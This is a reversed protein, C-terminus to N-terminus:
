IGSEYRGLTMYRRTENDIYYGGGQEPQWEYRNKAEDPFLYQMMAAIVGGHTVIVTDCGDAIIKDLGNIVRRTMMEGSEGGPPINTENDGTIWAIYQPDNKLQEYSRMEFEGFDIERFSIDVKHPIDGYILRLTQECRKMGSTIIRYGSPDPYIGAAKKELIAAKGAVSLGIDTSGCYLHQENAATAGHRILILKM